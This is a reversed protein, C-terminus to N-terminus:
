GPGSTNRDDRELGLEVAQGFPGPGLEALGLVEAGVELLDAVRDGFEVFLPQEDQLAQRRVEIEGLEAAVVEDLDVGLVPGDVVEDDLEVVGDGLELGQQAVLLAGVEHAVDRFVLLVHGVEDREEVDLDVPDDGLADVRALGLV